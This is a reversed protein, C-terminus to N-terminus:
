RGNIWDTAEKFQMIQGDVDLVPVTEFGKETMVDIDSVVEYEINKSDLKQKLVNCRPCGTSYLTVM